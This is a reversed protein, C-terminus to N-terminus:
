DKHFSWHCIMMPCGTGQNGCYAKYIPNEVLFGLSELHYLVKDALAYKHENRNRLSQTIRLFSTPKFHEKKKDMLELLRTIEKPDAWSDFDLGSIKGYKGFSYDELVNLIDDQIYMVEINDKKLKKLWTHLRSGKKDFKKKNEQFITEERECLMVLVKVGNPIGHTLLTVEREIETGPLGLIVRKSMDGLRLECEHYWGNMYQKIMHKKPSLFDGHASRSKM